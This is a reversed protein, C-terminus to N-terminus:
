RNSPLNLQWSVGFRDEVWAFLRSFGYDGLPTKVAGKESLKRSLEEMQEESDCDVFLSLSPTFSFDHEVPSDICMLQHGALNFLANKVAGEKGQEDPGYRVISIVESDPFVSLYFKMAEEAEGRFMLFPTIKMNM